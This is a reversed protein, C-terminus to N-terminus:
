AVMKQGMEKALTLTFSQFQSKYIRKWQLNSFSRHNVEKRRKTSFLSELPISRLLATQTDGLTENRVLDCFLFMTHSGANLDVPWQWSTKVVTLESTHQQNGYFGSNFNKNSDQRQEANQCDIITTMGLINKLDKSIAQIVLCDQEVNGCFKVHFEQTARDVKWSIKGSPSAAETSEQNTPSLNNGKDKRAASKMIADMIDDISSSCGAKIYHVEPTSFELAPEKRFQPPVRMSVMGPRRSSVNHSMAQLAVQPSPVSKSVTIKGETVNRVM